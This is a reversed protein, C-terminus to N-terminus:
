YGLTTAVNKHAVYTQVTRVDVGEDLMETIKTTRFDHSQVELKVVRRFFKSFHDKLQKENKGEFLPDEPRAGVTGQVLKLMGMTDPTLLGARMEGTKHCTWPFEGFGDRNPVFSNFRFQALDQVRAALEHLIKCSVRMLPYGVLNADITRLEAKTYAQHAKKKDSKKILRKFDFNRKECFDFRFKLAAVLV